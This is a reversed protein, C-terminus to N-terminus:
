SPVRPLKGDFASAFSNRNPSADMAELSLLAPPNFCSTVWSLSVEYSLCEDIVLRTLAIDREFFEIQKLMFVNEKDTNKKLKLVRVSQKELEELILSGKIRVLPEQM